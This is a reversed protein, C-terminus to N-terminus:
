KNQKFTNFIYVNNYFYCCCARAISIILFSNIWKDQVQESEM